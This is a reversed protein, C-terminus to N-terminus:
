SYSSGNEMIPPEKCLGVGNTQTSRTGYMKGLDSVFTTETISFFAATFSVLMKREVLYPASCCLFM